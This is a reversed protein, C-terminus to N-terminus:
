TKSKSGKAIGSLHVSPTSKKGCVNLGEQLSPISKKGKIMNTTASFQYGLESTGPMPQVKM